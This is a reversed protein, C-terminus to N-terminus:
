HRGSYIIIDRDIKELETPKHWGPGSGPWTGGKERYEPYKVYAYLGMLLIFLFLCAAFFEASTLRDPKM